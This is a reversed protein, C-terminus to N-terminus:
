RRNEKTTRAVKLFEDIVNRYQDFNAILKEIHGQLGLIYKETDKHEIMEIIGDSSTAVARLSSAIQKIAQHHSSSTTYTSRQLLRGWTSQPDIHVEHHQAWGDPSVLHELSPAPIEQFLSGGEAVNIIQMGRCNGIIPLHRKKASKYLALEFADRVSNPKLLFPRQYHTGISSLHELYQVRGEEHYFAPDIDEGGILFLGDIKECVDDVHDLSINPSLVLPIVNKDQFLVLYDTPVLIVSQGPSFNTSVKKSYSSIGITIPRM